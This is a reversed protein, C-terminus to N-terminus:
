TIGTFNLLVLQKRDEATKLGKDLNGTWTLASQDPLLFSNLWAFVTGSPQQPAGTGSKFLGPMLYFGLSLFALSFLLRPVGIHEIPEHDHPLRYLGLLYVGCLLSLGIYLGLVLDYTLFEAGAFLRLEGARLFKLAAAVELFGMVVKITNMWSGGRPLSRLLSPFLALVFFPSAFTLSFALAGLTLRVWDTVSQAGASIGIFGGYFPAVCTFSITTFTLAMFMTGVLGGRGEQSSTFNALSTPLQIEYMGFLSLAFFLFLGGLAFNTGWHQSFKQFTKILLVGAVTLVIVITLSYVTAMTVPRHHAKESQKLFFSVTIPIMPFVCPTLLSLAGWLVGNLIFGLWGEDSSGVSFPQSTDANSAAVTDSSAGGPRVVKPAPQSGNRRANLTPSVAVQPADSVTFKIEFQPSAPVCGRDDCVQMTVKVLLTQPGPIAQPTVLIDQTLTFPDTHAWLEKGEFRGLEPPPSETIPELPQLGPPAQYSLRTMGSVDFDPTRQTASYTHFGPRPAAEVTVKLVEGRRVQSPTATVQLDIRDDIVTKKVQSGAVVKASPKEPAPPQPEQKRQNAAAFPDEDQKAPEAKKGPIGGKATFPDRQALAETASLALLVALAL